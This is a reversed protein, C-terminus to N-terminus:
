PNVGLRRPAADRRCHLHARRGSRMKTYNNYDNRRPESEIGQTLVRSQEAGTAIDPSTAPM